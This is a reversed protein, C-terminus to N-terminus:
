TEEGNDFNIKVKAKKKKPLKKKDSKMTTVIAEMTIATKADDASGEDEGGVVKAVKRKKAAGISGLKQTAKGNRDGKAASAGEDTKSVSATEKAQEKLLAEYEDKTLTASSDEMVYTPGDDEDADLRKPRKPRAVADVHRDPDDTQGGIEGRLRRLFAPQSRDFELGKAKSMAVLGASTGLSEQHELPLVVLQYRGSLVPQIAVPVCAWTVPRYHEGKTM